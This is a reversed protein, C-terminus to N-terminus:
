SGDHLAEVHSGVVWGERGSDGDYCLTRTMAGERAWEGWYRVPWSEVVLDLHRRACRQIAEVEGGHGDALDEEGDVMSPPAALLVPRLGALHLRKVAGYAGVREGPHPSVPVMVPMALGHLLTALEDASAYLVVIIRADFPALLRSLAVRVGATAVTDQL